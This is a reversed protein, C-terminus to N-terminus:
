ESDNQENIRELILDALQESSLEYSGDIISSKIREIREKDPGTTEMNDIHSRIEKSLDSLEIRDQAKGGSPRAKKKDPQDNNNKYVKNIYGISNIRNIKM